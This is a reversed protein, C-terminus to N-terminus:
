YKAMPDSNPLVESSLAAESQIISKRKRADAAAKAKEETM